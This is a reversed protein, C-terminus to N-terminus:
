KSYRYFMLRIDNPAAALALTGFSRRWSLDIYPEWSSRDTPSFDDLYVENESLVVDYTHTLILSASATM